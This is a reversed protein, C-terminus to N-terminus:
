SCSSAALLSSSNGSVLGECVGGRVEPAAALNIIAYHYM